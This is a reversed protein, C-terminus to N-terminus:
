FSNIALSGFLFYLIFRFGIFIVASDDGEKYMKKLLKVLYGLLLISLIIIFWLPNIKYNKAINNLEGLTYCTLVLVLIAIIQIVSKNMYEGEFLYLFKIIVINFLSLGILFILIGVM